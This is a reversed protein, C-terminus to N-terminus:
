PMRKEPRVTFVDSRNRIRCTSSGKSDPRFSVECLGLETNLAFCLTSEADVHTRDLALSQGREEWQGACPLPENCPDKNSPEIILDSNPSTYFASRLWSTQRKHPFPIGKRPVGKNQFESNLVFNPSVSGMAWRPCCCGRTKLMFSGLGSTCNRM